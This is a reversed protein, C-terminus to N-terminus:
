EREALVTHVRLVNTTGSESPASNGTAVVLDGRKLCGAEKARSLATFFMDGGSNIDGTMPVVGWSLALQHCVKESETVAIVPCFPRSGSVSYATHGSQTVAMIARADLDMATTLTAHSIADTISSRSFVANLFRKKYNISSETTEAIKAMTEVSKVPYKGAATEGSLMIASTGDYIANAIDTVEARTPRPNSIMSELMQTATISIKGKGLCKKIIRKQIEPLKELEIEVGMDGRAIMVGDSEDIIDSINKVGDESEIKSIIRVTCGPKVTEIFSRLEKVDSASRVFSAAIYDVDNAIGFRIDEMDTESVYPMEVKSDPLNISKRDSLYGGNKVTVTVTGATREQVQTEILGDSFLLRDGEKVADSLGKFSVSVMYEDGQINENTITFRQGPRLFVRGNKFTGIRIEPGKTDLMVAVPLRLTSRLEKVADIRRKHDAHTGHSFNMRAVNMGSKMMDRLVNEEDTAPGLTCVIKTKRM